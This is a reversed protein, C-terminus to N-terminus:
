SKLKSTHYPWGLTRGFRRYVTVSQEHSAALRPLCDPLWSVSARDTRRGFCNNFLIQLSSTYPNACNCYTM